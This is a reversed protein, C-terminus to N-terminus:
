NNVSSTEDIPYTWLLMAAVEGLECYYYSFIQVVLTCVFYACAGFKVFITCFLNIKSMILNVDQEFFSIELVPICTSVTSNLQQKRM